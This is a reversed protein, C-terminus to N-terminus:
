LKTVYNSAIWGSRGDASQLKTWEGNEEVITMIDGARASIENASM